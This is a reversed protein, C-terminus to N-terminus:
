TTGSGSPPRRAAPLKCESNKINPVLQKAATGGSVGRTRRTAAPISRGRGTSSRASLMM